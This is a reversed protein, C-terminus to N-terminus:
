YMMMLMMHQVLMHVGVMVTVVCHVTKKGWPDCQGQQGVEDRGRHFLDAAEGGRARGGALGSRLDCPNVRAFRDDM